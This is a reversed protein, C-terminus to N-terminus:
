LNGWDYSICSGNEATSELSCEGNVNIELNDIYEYSDGHLSNSIISANEEGYHLVANTLTLRYANNDFTVTGSELVGRETLLATLNQCNDSNVRLGCILLTYDTRAVATLTVWAIAVLIVIKKM